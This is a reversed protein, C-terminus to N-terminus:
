LRWDTHQEGTELGFSVRWGLGMHERRIPPVIRCKHPVVRNSTLMPIVVWDAGANAETNFFSDFEALQKKTCFISVSNSSMSTSSVRTIRDPGSEMEVRRLAPMLEASFGDRLPLCPLTEPWVPYSM